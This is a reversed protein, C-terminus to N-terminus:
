RKRHIMVQNYSVPLQEYSAIIGEIISNLFDIFENKPKFLPSASFEIKDISFEILDYTPDTILRNLPGGWIIGMPKMSSFDIQTACDTSNAYCRHPYEMSLDNEITAEFSSSISKHLTYASVQCGTNSQDHLYLEDGM